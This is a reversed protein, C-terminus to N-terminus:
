RVILYTYVSVDYEATAMTMTTEQPEVSEATAMTMTTEQPEVSEATAMTMTTEQPEVSETTAMTMTMEQEPDQLSRLYCYIYINYQILSNQNNRVDSQRKIADSPDWKETQEKEM